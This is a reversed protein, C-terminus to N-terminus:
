GAAIAHAAALGSLAAAEVKPAGFADGALVLPASAGDAATAVWCPDPWPHRPTAFRWRKLQSEIISAGGLWTQRRGGCCTAPPRRITTGTRRAGIPPPMSRSPTSRHHGQGPQRRRLHVLTPRARRGAAPRRDFRRARGAARDHPRLQQAVLLEPMTVEATVLLSFAQPLPCTVILADAVIRPATTSGSRGAGIPCETRLSFVLSTAACTSTAARPAEGAREDRRARRVPSLRRGDRRRLRPVVRLRPRRARWRDVHRGFEDTRVTFFQAGHDFAATGIRRTALRGGPSRGKDFLVVEHGAAAARRAAMLGALGAGVVVVSCSTIRTLRHRRGARPAPRRSSRSPVSARALFELLVRNFTSAHEVMFGHAAGRSSWSSPTPM